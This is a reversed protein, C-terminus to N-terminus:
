GRCGPLRRGNFPLVARDDPDPLGGANTVRSFRGDRSPRNKKATEPPTERRASTPRRWRGRFTGHVTANQVSLPPSVNCTCFFRCGCANKRKVTKILREISETVVSKRARCGRGQSRAKYERCGIKVTM